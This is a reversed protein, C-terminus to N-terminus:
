NKSKKRKEKNGHMLAKWNKEFNKQVLEKLKQKQFIM